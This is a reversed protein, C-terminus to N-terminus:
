GLDPTYGRNYAEKLLATKLLYLTSDRPVHDQEMRYITRVNIPKRDPTATAACWERNTLLIQDRVRLMEAILAKRKEVRDTTEATTM